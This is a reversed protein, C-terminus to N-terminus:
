LPLQEVLLRKTITRLAQAIREDQEKKLAKIKEVIVDSMDIKYKVPKGNENQNM